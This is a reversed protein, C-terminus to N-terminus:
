RLLERAVPDDLCPLERGYLRRLLQRLHHAGRLPGGPLAALLAALPNVRGRPGELYLSAHM